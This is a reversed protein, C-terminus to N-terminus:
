SLLAKNPRQLFNAGNPLELSNGVLQLRYKFNTLKLYYNLFSVCSDGIGLFVLGALSWLTWEPAFIGGNVLIFTGSVPFACGM